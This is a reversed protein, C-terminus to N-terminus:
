MLSDGNCRSRSIIRAASRCEVSSRIRIWHDATPTLPDIPSTSHLTTDAPRAPALFSFSTCGLATCHLPTSHLAIRHDICDIPTPFSSATQQKEKGKKQSKKERERQKENVNETGRWQQALMLRRPSPAVCMSLRDRHCRQQSPQVPVSAACPRGDIRSQRVGREERDSDAGVTSPEHASSFYPVFLKPPNPVLLKPVLLKPDFPGSSENAATLLLPACPRLASLRASCSGFKM